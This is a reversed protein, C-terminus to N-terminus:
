YKQIALQIRFHNIIQLVKGNNSNAKILRDLSQGQGQSYPTTSHDLLILQVALDETQSLLLLFPHTVQEIVANVVHVDLNFRNQLKFYRM